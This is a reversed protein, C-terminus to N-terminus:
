SVQVVAVHALRTLKRDSPLNELVNIDPPANSIQLRLNCVVMSGQERPVIDIESKCRQPPMHGQGHTEQPTSHILIPVQKSQQGLDKLRNQEREM